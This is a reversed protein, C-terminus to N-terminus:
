YGMSVADQGPLGQGSGKIDPQLPFGKGKM